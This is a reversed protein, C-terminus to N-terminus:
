AFIHEILEGRTDWLYINVYETFINVLNVSYMWQTGWKGQAGDSMHGMVGTQWRSRHMIVAIHGMVWTDM